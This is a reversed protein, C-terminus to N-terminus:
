ITELEKVAKRVATEIHNDNCGDPYLEFGSSTITIIKSYLHMENPDIAHARKLEFLSTHLKHYYLWNHQHHVSLAQYVEFHLASPNAKKINIWPQMQKLAQILTQYQNKPYKM